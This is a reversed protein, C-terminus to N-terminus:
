FNSLVCVSGFVILLNITQWFYQYESFSFCLLSQATFHKERTEIFDSCFPLIDEVTIKRDCAFCVPPEEGKLLFSHTISSHGIRLRSILDRRKQKDSSLNHLGKLKSIIKHLKNEPFEKWESQWLELVYRNVHSKLDSFPIPKGSIDDDLADKAATDAVLNRRNGVHGPVWTFAIETGDRTLEM